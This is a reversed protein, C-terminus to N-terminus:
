LRYIVESYVVEEARARIGNMRRVWEMQDTAKLAETVGERKAMEASLQAFMREAREDAEVLHAHLKFSYLLNDYLARHERKLWHGHRQGWIGIPTKGEDPLELDPILYDGERHYTGGLQEFLSKMTIDKGAMRRPKNHSVDSIQQKRFKQPNSKIHAIFTIGGGFLLGV